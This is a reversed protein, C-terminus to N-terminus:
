REPEPIVIEVEVMMGPRLPKGKIAEISIKVPVRQSIKTFNGSPNPNPLLSFQSTASSGVRVVKGTFPRDPYADVVINVSANVTVHRLETERVNTEVWVQEPDHILAIRQGQRVFEGPDIFVKDVVGNIPSKVERDQIHLTQQDVQTSLTRRKADIEDSKRQLVAVQGRDTGIELLRAKNAELQSVASVQRSEANQLEIEAKELAQPSAIKRRALPRLRKLESRKLRVQSATARVESASADVKHSQVKIRQDIQRVILNMQSQLTVKQADLEARRAELEALRLKAERQDIRAILSQKQLLQGQSVPVETVWGAVRSSVAILNTTIRADDELVHSARHKLWVVGWFLGGGGILVLLVLQIIRKGSM